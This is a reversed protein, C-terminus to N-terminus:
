RKEKFIYLILYFIAGCWVNIHQILLATIILIATNVILSCKNNM